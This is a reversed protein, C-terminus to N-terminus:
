KRNFIRVCEVGDLTSTLVMQGADNMKRCIVMDMDGLKGSVTISGDEDVKATAVFTKGSIDDSVESGDLNVFKEKGSVHNIVKMKDGEFSLTQKPTINQAAKRGMFGVGLKKLFEDVNTQSIAVWEGELKLHEGM